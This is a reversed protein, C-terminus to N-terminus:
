SQISQFKKEYSLVELQRILEDAAQQNPIKITKGNQWPLEVTVAKTARNTYQKM